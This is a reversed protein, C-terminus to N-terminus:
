LFPSEGHPKHMLFQFTPVSKQVVSDFNEGMGELM